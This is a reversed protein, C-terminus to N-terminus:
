TTREEIMTLFVGVIAPDFQSGAHELLYTKAQPEPWAKRYPRDSTLADYVDIVSFLRAALPIQEGKLGSPYGTGDWKEHHYRPIDLSKQLYPVKSLFDYALQPHRRMVSWEAETLTGNKLLISDPVGLKGIDHLLAGRRINEIEAKSLGIKQALMIALSAVRKSHGETEQDRVDMAASWGELTAEYSQELELYAKQLEDYLNNYDLALGMQTAIADFLNLWEPTPTFIKRQFIELVGFPKGGIIIPVCYQSRFGEEAILKGFETGPDIDELSAAITIQQKEAATGVNAQGMPVVANQILTTTYGESVRSVFSHHQKDFLYLTVADGNLMIRTQILLPKMVEDFDMVTSITRTILKLFSLHRMQATTRQQIVLRVLAMEFQSAESNFLKENDYPGQREVSFVVKGIKEDALAIEHVFVGSGPRADTMTEGFWKEETVLGNTYLCIGVHMKASQEKIFSITANCLAEPTRAQRTAANYGIQLALDEKAQETATINQKILIFHNIEGDPDAVPYLKQEEFYLTGDKKQEIVTLSDEDDEGKGEPRESFDLCDSHLCFASVNKGTVEDVTFGTLKEFAPNVFEVVKDRNLLVIAVPAMELARAQLTIHAQDRSAQEESERQRLAHKIATPLRSLNEKLIYDYAGQKIADIAAEEGIKGSVIIFPATIGSEKVKALAEMGSFQPLAWDSLIIDFEHGSNLAADFDRRSAAEVFKAGPYTKSITSSVLFADDPNDEIILVDLKRADPDM